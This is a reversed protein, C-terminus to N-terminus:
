VHFRRRSTDLEARHKWEYEGHQPDFTGLQLSKLKLTFRPGLEQLRVAVDGKGSDDEFVYRHHRFFVYDRQNHMTVVQRGKFQPDHPFLCALLRGLRHGLRTGFNNLILEPRHATPRGHGAIRKPMVLTTLKFRATPGGPLKILWLTQPTKSKETLLLLNTFGREACADVIRKITIANRPRYESNPLMRLLEEVLSLLQASPYRGTTIMTRPPVEGSFHAAFEDLADEGAVEEDDPGVVTDDAERTNDLTRQVTQPAAEGLEEAEKQRLKRAQKAAKDGEKKLKHYMQQRKIKNKIGGVRDGATGRGKAM